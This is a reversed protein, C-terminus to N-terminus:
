YKYVYLPTCGHFNNTVALSIECGFVAFFNFAEVDVDNIINGGFVTLSIGCFADVEGFLFKCSHSVNINRGQQPM